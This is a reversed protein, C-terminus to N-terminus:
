CRRDNAHKADPCLCLGFGSTFYPECVLGPECDLSRACLEGPKSTSAYPWARCDFGQLGECCAKAHAARSTQEHCRGGDMTLVFNNLNRSDECVGPAEGSQICSAGACPADQDCVPHSAVDECAIDRYLDFLPRGTADVAISKPDRLDTAVLPCTAHRVPAAPGSDGANNEPGPDQTSQGAGAPLSVRGSDRASDHEDTMVRADLERTAADRSTGVPVAGVDLQCAMTFIPAACLARLLM